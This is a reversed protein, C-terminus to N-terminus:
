RVLLKHTEKIDCGPPNEGTETYQKLIARKDPVRETVVRMFEDPVASADTIEVRPQGDVLTISFLPTKIRKIHAAHMHTKIYERLRAASDELARRRAALRKEEGGAAEADADLQALVKCINLAKVQIADDLEALAAAIDEGQEARELLEAYRGTLAYLPASM